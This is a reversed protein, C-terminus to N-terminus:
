NPYKLKLKKLSEVVAKAVLYDRYWKDNAPIINWSILNSSKDFINQYVSMYEDWKKSEKADEPNHKWNKKPDTLRDKLRKHQEKESIHLYFKLITVGSNTLHTEFNNIAQMRTAIETKNIQKHVAPFIIDEYQSRNFIQIMGKEPLCLNIRWLFDYKLELETPTKFSKVSCGQPNISTFVHRLTSDKGSTDMGQLIILLSHKQEAYFINQLEAIQKRLQKFEKQTAEKNIQSSPSTAITKFSKM